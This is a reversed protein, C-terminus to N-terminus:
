PIDGCAIATHDKTSRYIIIAMPKQTNFQELNISLDTESEGADPAVLLYVLAGPTACTGSHLEVPVIIEDELGDIHLMIAVAGSVDQFTATGSVGSSGISDISILYTPASPPITAYQVAPVNIRPSTPYATPTGTPALQGPARSLMAAAGGILFCLAMMGFILYLKKKM